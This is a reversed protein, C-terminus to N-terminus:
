PDARYAIYSKSMGLFTERQIECGPFMSRFEAETMLRTSDLMARARASDPRAIWGWVTLWRVTGYQLGRPLWHFLPTLLHPEFFFSRAPTQVWLGKGVRLAEAAFRRQDDLTGVHEIVSNSFVIDFSKDPFQLDRADGTEFRIHDPYRRGEHSRDTNILTLQPRVNVLTWNFATGGLDLIKTGDVVGFRTVFAAMRKQRFRFVRHLFGIVSHINVAVDGPVHENTTAARHRGLRPAVRSLDVRMASLM